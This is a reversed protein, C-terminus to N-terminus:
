SLERAVVSAAEAILANDYDADKTHRNTMIAIVIPAAKPRWVVAIDNRTGFTGGAGTKDGVVWDDPLGARILKAGTTNAKLWDAMQTREAKGLVDGLVFARLDGAFARPTTTDPTSGPAWQNLQTERRQMRTVDDGMGELMADLSKPGGLMGLLLNGATNDSHHLAAECLARVTMGTDVHRETVPSYDVLDKRSYKILKDLGDLSYTRLVAAAALAKFTSAYAFRERDRYAVERGTGTDVAYVGLRADFTRELQAFAGDASAEADVAAAMPAAPADAAASHGCAALPILMLLGLAASRTRTFKM